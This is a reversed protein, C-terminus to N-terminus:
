SDVGQTNGARRSASSATTGPPAFGPAKFTPVPLSVRPPVGSSDGSRVFEVLKEMVEPLSRGIPGLVGHGGHEAVLYRANRFYPVLAVLNEVPTSTDWDGQTFIVPIDCVRENRFEDGVDESPWIGATALYDDFNWHGLFESGVDTRLLFARRPTVGLSTDIVPGILFTTVDRARRKALALRALGDYHGHFLSLLAAPESQSLFDRQFDQRGLVVTVDEGSKEDRTRVRVPDRDLRKLVERAAAALGGAPLYPKLEPVNEAEWWKRQVATVIHSPMDYGYDLPEIGSLLARAVVDPHRRMTAFSWQSGFSTAVLTIREYGLAKRLDNVDDACELITYGRLDVGKKACDAVAERATEM